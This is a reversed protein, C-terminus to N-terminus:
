KKGRSRRIELPGAQGRVLDIIEQAKQVFGDALGADQFKERVRVQFRELDQTGAPLNNASFDALAAELCHLPSNREGPGIPAGKLDAILKEVLGAATLVRISVFDQSTAEGDSVTLVVVHKGVPLTVLANAETSLPKSSGKIHWAYSLASDVDQSASGDLIVNGINKGAALVTLDRAFKLPATAPAAKAIAVPSDNVPSVTIVISETATGGNGDTVTFSFRDSGFFNQPPTYTLSAGSGSLSGHLPPGYAYSPEDGDVDSAALTISLPQDESTEVHQSQATPADNVSLVLITVTGTATGGNGDAVTFVFSDPGHYNASPQYVFSTGTGSLTGHAPAAPAFTLVDGDPDNASLTLALGTDEPTTVSQGDAVPARNSPLTVDICVHAIETGWEGDTAKFSFLDPGVYGTNPQYVVNPPEGSLTGHQPSALVTYTLPNNDPDTAHLTIPLSRDQDVSVFSDYASPPQNEGIRHGILQLAFAMDESDGAAQHVEVALTNIAGLVAGPVVRQAVVSEDAGAINRLASTAYQVPGTPMNSRFIEIGNLYVVGGDDRLLRVTVNSYISPNAIDFRTRFYAANLPAGNPNPVLPTFEDGDGFGFKSVGFNWDFHSFESTRWAPAPEVGNDVYFWVDIMSVFTDAARGSCTAAVLLFGSLCTIVRARIMKM